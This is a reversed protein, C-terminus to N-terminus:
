KERKGSLRATRAAAAAAAPFPQGGQARHDTTLLAIAVRASTGAAQFPWTKVLSTSSIHLADGPHVCGEVGSVAGVVRM